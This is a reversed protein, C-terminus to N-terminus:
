LNYTGLCYWINSFVGNLLSCIDLHTAQQEFMKLANIYYKFLISLILFGIVISMITFLNRHLEHLFSRNKNNNSKAIFMTLLYSYSVGKRCSNSCIMSSSKEKPIM